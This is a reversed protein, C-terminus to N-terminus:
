RTPEESTSAADLAVVPMVGQREQVRGVDASSPPARRSDMRLADDETRLRGTRESSGCRTSLAIRNSAASWCPQRPATPSCGGRRHPAAQRRRRTWESCRPAPDNRFPSRCRASSTARRLGIGTEEDFGSAAGAPRAAGAACTTGAGADDGIAEIAEGAAALTWRQMRELSRWTRRCCISGPAPIGRQHPRQPHAEDFRFQNLAGAAAAAVAPASM